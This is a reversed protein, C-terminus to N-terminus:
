EKEKEKDGRRAGPGLVFPGLRGAIVAHDTSPLNSSPRPNSLTPPPSNFLQVPVAPRRSLLLEPSPSPPFPVAPARPRCPSVPVALACPNAHDETAHQPRDSLLCRCRIARRFRESESVISGLALACSQLLVPRPPAVYPATRCCVPAGRPPHIASPPAALCPHSSSMIAAACVPEHTTNDRPSPLRAAAARPPRPPPRQPPALSLATPRFLYSGDASTRPPLCTLLPTPLSLDCLSIIPHRLILALLIVLSPPTL